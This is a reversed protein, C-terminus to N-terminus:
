KQGGSVVVYELDGAMWQDRSQRLYTQLELLDARRAQDYASSIQFQELRQISGDLTIIAWSVASEWATIKNMPLRTYYM